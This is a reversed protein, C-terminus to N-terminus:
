GNLYNRSFRNGLNILIEHSIKNSKDALDNITQHSGLFTLKKPIQNLHSIDVTVLDMSIRGLIPCPIQNYFLHGNDSFELSLGDAYGGSLTAVKKRKNKGSDKSIFTVLSTRTGQKVTNVAHEVKCM